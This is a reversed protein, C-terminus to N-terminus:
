VCGTLKRFVSKMRGAQAQEFIWKGSIEEPAWNELRKGTNLVFHPRQELEEFSGTGLEM